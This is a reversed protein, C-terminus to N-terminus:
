NTTHTGRLISLNKMGKKYNINTIIYYYFTVLNSTLVQICKSICIKRNYKKITDFKFKPKDTKFLKKFWLKQKSHNLKLLLYARSNYVLYHL